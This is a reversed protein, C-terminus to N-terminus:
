DTTKADSEPNLASASQTWIVHGDLYVVNVGGSHECGKEPHRDKQEIFGTNADRVLPYDAPPIRLRGSIFLGNVTLRIRNPNPPQFNFFYSSRRHNVLFHDEDKGAFPDTACFLIADNKIRSQLARYLNEPSDWKSAAGSDDHRRNLWPPLLGDYNHSYMELAMGIQRLNSICAAKHGRARVSALAGVLIVVVIVLVLLLLLLEIFTFGRRRM